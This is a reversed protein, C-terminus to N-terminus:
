STGARLQPVVILGTEADGYTKITGTLLHHATVACLAADVSDINTLPQMDVGAKVLLKRRITAKQKASVLTGALACAIAQPFTEFCVRNGIPVVTGEFLPYYEELLCFLEAGNLMWGFHNKPHAAATEQTPTSFCWIGDAMLEREAPRARGIPSWRCPADVGVAYAGTERCWDAIDSANRSSFQVHYCGDRLAVAHFGKKPGGVDIGAVILPPPIM